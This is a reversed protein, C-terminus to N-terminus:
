PSSQPTATSVKLLTDVERGIDMAAPHGAKKIQGQSDIIYTTPVGNVRFARAPKSQWGGDDAWANFTNTWGRKDVHKRVVDITDDISLPVIAVRDKWDTHSQRLTQLQAMPEQCPGCWTAWFDLVVVKGRLDSLKMKQTNDLRVFGIEPVTTGPPLTGNEAVYNEFDVAAATKEDVVGTPFKAWRVKGTVKWADGFRMIENVALTYDGSLPQGAQSKLDSKVSFEAEFRDGQLGELSGAGGRGYLQKVSAHTVEISADKLSIGAGEMQSLTSRAADLAKKKEETYMEDFERRSPKEGARQEVQAWAAELSPLVKQEYVGIDDVRAFETLAAGLERLAPDDQETIGQNSAAKDLIAMERRTKEDAVNAPFSAWEVADNCRWGGPFKILHHVALKFEGPAANTSSSGLTLIVELKQAFPLREDPAEL